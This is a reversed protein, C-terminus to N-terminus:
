NLQLLGEAEIIKKVLFEEISVIDGIRIKGLGDSLKKSFDYLRKDSVAELEYCENIIEIIHDYDDTISIIAHNIDSNVVKGEVVYCNNSIIHKCNLLNIDTKTKILESLLMKRKSLNQELKVRKNIKKLKIIQDKFGKFAETKLDKIKELKFRYRDSVTILGWKRKIEELNVGKNELKKPLKIIQKRYAM